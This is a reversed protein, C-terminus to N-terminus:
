AIFDSAFGAIAPCRLWQAKSPTKFGSRLLKSYHFDIKSDLEFDRNAVWLLPIKNKTQKIMIFRAVWISPIKLFRISAYNQLMESFRM